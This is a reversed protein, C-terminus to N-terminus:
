APPRVLDYVGIISTRTAGLMKYEVHASNGEIRVVKAVIGAFRGKPINVHDGVKIGSPTAYPENVKRGNIQHLSAMEEDRISGVYRRVHKTGRVANALREDRNARVVVYGTMLPYDRPKAQKQRHHQKSWKREFPVEATIGVSQLEDRAKFEGQPTTRFASRAISMDTM